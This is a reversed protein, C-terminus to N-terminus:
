KRNILDQTELLRNGVRIGVRSFWSQPVELAFRAPYSSQVPTLNFPEMDHIELIKGDESIFAISLPIRTNKMWFSLIQEREFIFIMGKGHALSNRHMLGQEQQRKTRATEAIIGISNGEATEITLEATEFQVNQSLCNM